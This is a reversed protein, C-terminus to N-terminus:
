SDLIKVFEYAAFTAMNVPIARVLENTKICPHISGASRILTPSLGSFFVKFGDTRYSHVITSWITNYPNNSSRNTSQIRTKVVDFGFTALWGVVGAVGGAILMSTWSTEPM